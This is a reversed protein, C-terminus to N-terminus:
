TRQDVIRERPRQGYLRRIAPWDFRLARYLMVPIAVIGGAGGIAWMGITLRDSPQIQILHLTRLFPFITHQMMALGATRSAIVFGIASGTLSAAVVWLLTRHFVAMFAEARITANAHPVSTM